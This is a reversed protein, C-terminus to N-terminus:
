SDKVYVSSLYIQNLHSYLAIGAEQTTLLLIVIYSFEGTTYPVLVHIVFQINGYSLLEPYVCKNFYILLSIHGHM